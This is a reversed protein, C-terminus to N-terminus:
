PNLVEVMSQAMEVAITELDAHYHNPDGMDDIGGRSSLGALAQGAFWNTLTMGKCTAGPVSPFAYEQPWRGDADPGSEPNAQSAEAKEARALMLAFTADREKLVAAIQAELHLIRAARQKPAQGDQCPGTLGCKACTRPYPSGAERLRIQCDTM